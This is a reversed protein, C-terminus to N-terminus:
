CNNLYIKLKRLTVLLFRVDRKHRSWIARSNGVFTEYLDRVEEMVTAFKAWRIRGSQKVPM